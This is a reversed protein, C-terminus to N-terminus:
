RTRHNPCDLCRITGPGESLLLHTSFPMCDTIVRRGASFCLSYKLFESCYAGEKDRVASRISYGAQGRIVRARWIIKIESGTDESYPKTHTSLMPVAAVFRHLLSLPGMFFYLCLHFTCACISRSCAHDECVRDDYVLSRTTRPTPPPRM